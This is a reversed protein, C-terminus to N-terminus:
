GPVVQPAAETTRAVPKHFWGIVGPLRSLLLLAFWLLGLAVGAERAEGNGSLAVILIGERPGLGLVSIPLSLALNVVAWAAIMLTLPVHIDLSLAAVYLAIALMIGIVVSFLAMAVIPGRGIERFALFAEDLVGLAKGLLPWRAAWREGHKRSLSRLYVLGGFLALAGACVAAGILGFVLGQGNQIVYVVMVLGILAASVVDAVREILVAALGRGLSRSGGQSVMALRAASSVGQPLLLQALWASYFVAYYDWPHEYILGSRTALFQWRFARMLLALNLLVFALLVLSWSADGIAAFTEGYDIGLFAFAVLLLLGAIKLLDIPRRWIRM